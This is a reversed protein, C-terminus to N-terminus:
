LIKPRKRNPDESEVRVSTMTSDLRSLIGFEPMRPVPNPNERMMEFLAFSQTESIKRLGSWRSLFEGM